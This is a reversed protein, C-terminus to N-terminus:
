FVSFSNMCWSCPRESRLNPASSVNVIMMVMVTIPFGTLQDLCNRLGQDYHVLILADWMVQMLKRHPVFIQKFNHKKKICYAEITETITIGSHWAFTQLVVLEPM